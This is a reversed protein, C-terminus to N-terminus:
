IYEITWNYYGLYYSATSMWSSYDSGSPVKLVGNWVVYSFTSSSISPAISNLCIIEKLQQCDKFAGEGINTVSNPITISTLGSRESFAYGAIGLTGEEVEISTGEPMTGKYSDLVKGAYVIGDPQNIYWVTGSFASEGISTVSNPIEISTLSRCNGFVSNGINTVSNPLIISTLNYCNGFAWNGINTVSNGITVSNLESCGNFASHGISTVSNPIEVSTLGSCDSFACEGISTVSNGITVSKLTKNLYFPSYGQSYGTKYKINRGLYLSELPCDRFLGEATGNYGLSLTTEGDEIYLDKLSTCEDFAYDKINTVSNPITISTFGRCSVFAYKGISTVSEPINVSIINGCWSFAYQEITTVSNPIEINTLSSCNHFVYQKINKVGDPIVLDTVLEGNLYLNAENNLPNSYLAIFVINCWATLDSIYVDKLSNCNYFANIGISTVSNGITVNTLGTCGYFAGEGITTVSNPIEISELSNCYAFAENRITTVSNPIIVSTLSNCDYFVKDGIEYNWGKYNAPLTLETDNGIYGCLTNITGYIKAWVFDGEISGNPANIVKDAYYGVHGNDASGKSITLSSYNIVTKLNSCEYFTNYGIGTVNNPITISTLRSCGMFAGNAITKVGNGLTVSELDNCNALAYVEIITVSDPIVISTLGSRDSFANRGISTVSNPIITNKCGAVLKNTVTEIIANCNDRSDYVSNGSEVVISKFSTCYGFADDGISTVSNPITINTLSTCDWFAEYGISTVNNPIIIGTLANCGCFASQGINTVSNPIAISTLGTCGRFANMGINTVSNPITISTLNTCYYFAYDVIQSINDPLEITQLFTQNEFSILTPYYTYIYGIGDEYTHDLIAGQINELMQNNTTTYKYVYIPKEKISKNFFRRRM